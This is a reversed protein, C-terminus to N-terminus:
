ARRTGDLGKQLLLFKTAARGDFPSETSKLLMPYECVDRKFLRPTVDQLTAVISGSVDADVFGKSETHLSCGFNDVTLYLNCYMENLIIYTFM